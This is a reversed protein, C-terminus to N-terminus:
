ESTLGLVHDGVHYAAERVTAAGDGTRVIDLVWGNRDEIYVEMWVSPGGAMADSKRGHEFGLVRPRLVFDATDPDDTRSLGARGSLRAELAHKFESDVDPAVEPPAPAGPGTAETEVSLVAFRTSSRLMDAFDERLVWPRDACGLTALALACLLPLAPWPWPEVKAPSARM